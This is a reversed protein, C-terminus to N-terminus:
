PHMKPVFSSTLNGGDMTKHSFIKYPLGIRALNYVVFVFIRMIVM